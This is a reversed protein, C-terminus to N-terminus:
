KDGTKESEPDKLTIVVLAIGLGILSIAWVFRPIGTVDMLTVSGLNAINELPEVVHPYIWIYFAAGAFMGLLAMIADIRGSAAGALATGPCLGALGFGIGMIAGGFAVTVWTAPKVNHHALGAADLAWFGAIGTILFLVIVRLAYLDKLRLTGLIRDPDSLGALVLSAGFLIGVILGKAIIM